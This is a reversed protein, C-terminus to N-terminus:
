EPLIRNIAFINTLQASAYKEWLEHPIHGVSKILEGTIHCLTGPVHQGVVSHFTGQALDLSFVADLEALNQENIVRVLHQALTKNTETSM